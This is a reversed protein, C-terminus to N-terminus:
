RQLIPYAFLEYRGLAAAKVNPPLEFDGVDFHVASIKQPCDVVACILGVPLDNEDFLVCVVCLGWSDSGGTYQVYGDLTIGGYVSDRLESRVVEYRTAAASERDSAAHSSLFPTVEPQAGEAFSLDSVYERFYGSEGPRLVQPWAAVDSVYHRSQGDSLVFSGSELVLTEEGTNKVVCLLQTLVGGQGDAYCVAATYTVTLVEDPEPTGTPEATSETPETGAPETASESESPQLSSEPPADTESPTPATSLETPAPRRPACACLLLVLALGLLLCLIRKM